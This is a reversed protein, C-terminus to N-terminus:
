EATEDSTNYDTVTTKESINSINPAIRTLVTAIIFLALAFDAVDARSLIHMFSTKGTIVLVARPIFLNLGFLAAPLGFGALKWENGKAEVNSNSQAFAMFSLIMFILGLMELTIDSVRLYSITRAFKTVLRVVLWIVPFLSLIKVTDSRKGTLLFVGLLLFFIAAIIGLIAEILAFRANIATSVTSSVVYQSADISGSVYESYCSYLVALASVISLIGCGPFKQAQTEFSIKKKKLLASVFFFVSAAAMVIAYIAINANFKTYFGSGGEIVTFYQITRLPLTVLLAAAFVLAQTTFVPRFRDSM